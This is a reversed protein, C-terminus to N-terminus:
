SSMLTRVAAETDAESQAAARGQALAHEIAEAATSSQKAVYAVARAFSIPGLPATDAQAALVAAVAPAIEPKALWDGFAGLEVVQYQAPPKGDPSLDTLYVNQGDLDSLLYEGTHSRQSTRLAMVQGANPLSLTVLTCSAAAQLAQNM